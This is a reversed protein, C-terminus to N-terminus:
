GREYGAFAENQIRTMEAADFPVRTREAVRLVASRARSNKAVEEAGAKVARGVAKLMPEPIHQAKLPMHGNDMASRSARAIFRKILRDELSHFSIVALRAGTKMMSVIIPLARMIEQFEENVQIRLAQFTRTAPDQQWDGRIRAGISEAVIKALECTRRIPREERAAVIARAISPAFREEGYDKLVKTIQQQTAHALFDAASEGHAPDMRMDLRGDKRFSFGRESQDIQPSSIGLDLLVGDVEAIGQARLVEAISSFRAQFFCLRRDKRAMSEAMHAAEPDRDIAILTGSADLRALIEKAHGGRGFTGDVYVGSARLNLAAVTENLLVPVHGNSM